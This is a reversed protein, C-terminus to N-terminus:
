LVSYLKHAIDELAFYYYYIRVWLTAARLQLCLFIKPVNNLFFKFRKSLSSLCHGSLEFNGWSSGRSPARNESSGSRPGSGVVCFYTLALDPWALADLGAADWKEASLVFVKAL